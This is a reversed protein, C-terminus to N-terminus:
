ARVERIQVHYIHEVLARRLPYDRVVYGKVEEVVRVGNELYRFDATYKAIHGNRMKVPAGDIVIQYVPHLELAAIDGRKELIKMEAYRKAEAGSAFRQGDVTQAVAGYKSRKPRMAAKAFDAAYEALSLNPKVMVKSRRRM